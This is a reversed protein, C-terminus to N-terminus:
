LINTTCPLNVAFNQILKYEVNTLNGGGVRGWGKWVRNLAVALPKMARNQIHLGDNM